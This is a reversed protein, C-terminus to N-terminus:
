DDRGGLVRVMAGRHDYGWGARDPALSNPRFRRYGNVSPTAFVTAAGAHELVGALYSEGLPSLLDKGAFLNRGASDSLSQHLHWGSAYYGKLAPRAIFTAFSSLRRCVQRSSTRSLTLYVSSRQACVDCCYDV